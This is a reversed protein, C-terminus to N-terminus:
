ISQYANRIPREGGLLKRTSRLCGLPKYRSGKEEEVEEECSSHGPWGNEVNDEKVPYHDHGPEDTSENFCGVFPTLGDAM